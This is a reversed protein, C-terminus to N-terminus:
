VGHDAMSRTNRNGDELLRIIRENSVRSLILQQNVMENHKDSNDKLQKLISVSQGISANINTMAQDPTTSTQPGVATPLNNKRPDNAKFNNWARDPSSQLNNMPLTNKTIDTGFLQNGLWDGAATGAMGGAISGPIAGAGGFLAGISGGAAGGLAGGGVSLASKALNRASFEKNGFIYGLSEIGAGVVGGRLASRGLGKMGGINDMIGRSARNDNAASRGINTTNFAGRTGTAKGILMAATSMAGLGLVTGGIAAGTKPHDGLWDASKQINLYFQILSNAATDLESEFTELGGDVVADLAANLAAIRQNDLTEKQLILKGGEKDAAANLANNPTTNLQLQTGTLTNQIVSSIDGAMRDGAGVFIQGLALNQAKNARSMNSANQLMAAFAKENGKGQKVMNAIEVVARTMVPNLAANQAANSTTITGNALIQNFVDKLGAREAFVAGSTYAETNKIGMNEIISNMVKDNMVEAKAKM